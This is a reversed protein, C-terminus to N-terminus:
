EESNFLWQEASPRDRFVDAKASTKNLETKWPQTLEFFDDDPAVVAIRMNPFKKAALADMVTVGKDDAQDYEFSTVNTFDTMQFQVDRTKPNYYIQRVANLIDKSKVVGQGIIEISQGDDSYKIDLEVM